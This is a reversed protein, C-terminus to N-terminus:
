GAEDMEVPLDDNSVLPLFIPGREDRRTFRSASHTIRDDADDRDKRPRYVRVAHEACYSGRESTRGCFLPERTDGHMWQCTRAYAIRQFLM